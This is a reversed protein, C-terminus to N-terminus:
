RRLGYKDDSLDIWSGTDELISSRCTLIAYIGGKMEEVQGRM